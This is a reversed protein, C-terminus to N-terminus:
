QVTYPWFQTLSCSARTATGNCHHHADDDNYRYKKGTLNEGRLIDKWLFEQQDWFPVDNKRTASILLLPMANTAMKRTKQLKCGFGAERYPFTCMDSWKRKGKAVEKLREVMSIQRTGRKRAPKPCLLSVVIVITASIGKHVVETIGMFPLMIMRNALLVLLCLLQPFM